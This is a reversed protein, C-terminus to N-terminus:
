SAVSALGGGRASQLYQLARSHLTTSVRTASPVKLSQDEAAIAGQLIPKPSRGSHPQGKPPQHQGTSWWEDGRRRFTVHKKAKIKWARRERPSAQGQGHHSLSAVGERVPSFTNTATLGHGIPFLCLTALSKLSRFLWDTEQSSDTTILHFCRQATARSVAM